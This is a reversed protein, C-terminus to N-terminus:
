IGRSYKDLERRASGYRLSYLLKEEAKAAVEDADGGQSYINIQVSVNPGDGGVPREGQYSQFAGRLKSLPTVIEPEKEALRAIQPYMAWGGDAYGPLPGSASVTPAIGMSGGIARMTQNLSTLEGYLATQLEDLYGEVTGDPGIVERLASVISQRQRDYIASGATLIETYYQVALTQASKLLNKQEELALKTPEYFTEHLNQAEAQVWQYYTTAESRIYALASAKAAEYGKIDDGYGEIGADIQDLLGEQITIKAAIFDLEDNMDSTLSAIENQIELPDRAAAEADARIGELGALVEEYLTRYEPSPRQWAEQGLSLLDGYLSQLQGAYKIRDDDTGAGSYLGQTRQIESRVFAMRVALDSPNDWGTQMGRIQDSVSDMVSAWQKSIALEEKLADIREGYNERVLSQEDRLDAITDQIDARHASM